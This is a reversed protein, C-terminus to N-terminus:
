TCSREAPVVGPGHGYRGRLLHIRRASITSLIREHLVLVLEYGGHSGHIGARHDAWAGLWRQINNTCIINCPWCRYDGKFNNGSQKIEFRIKVTALAYTSFSTGRWTGAFERLPDPSEAVAGPPSNQGSSSSCSCWATAFSLLVVTLAFRM